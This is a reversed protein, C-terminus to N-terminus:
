IQLRNSFVFFIQETPHYTAYVLVFAMGNSDARRNRTFCIGCSTLHWIGSRIKWVLNWKGELNLFDPNWQLKLFAKYKILCQRILTRINIKLVKPFSQNFNVFRIINQSDTLVSYSSVLPGNWCHCAQLEMM